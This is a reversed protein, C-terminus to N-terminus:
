FRDIRYPDIAIDMKEGSLYDALLKGSGASLSWGLHGQGTNLYLNTIATPGIVPVGDWCYPRLGAWQGARSIDRFSSFDPYIEDLFGALRRIRDARISTDLGAFEAMGAVRIRDGLPTVAIHRADDIVPMAPGDEWGNLNMTISYGKIPRIPVSIGLKKALPVSFCGAALIYADGTFEGRSTSVANICHDTYRMGTVETNYRFECGLKEAEGALERCFKHADGAEDDPYYVGGSIRGGIGHLAPERELVGGSDLIELNVGMSSLSQNMKVAKDFSRENRYLKLTGNESYDYSIGTERRISRFIGLSYNALAANKELSAHFRGPTSNRLFVLSWKILSVVTSPSFVLPSDKRFLLSFLRALSAPSNWPDAQSPTVMGSNAFSTEMGASERRELVTVQHGNRALFYATTVGMLGSGIIVIRM